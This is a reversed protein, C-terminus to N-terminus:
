VEIGISTSGYVTTLNLTMTIKKHDRVISLVSVDKIYPNVLLGEKICQFLDNSRLPDNPGTGIFKELEIGYDDYYALYRYREVLLTKWVWVKIAENREVLKHSGDSNYIFKSRNFDWAFEQFVPLNASTTETEDPGVVFPNAM